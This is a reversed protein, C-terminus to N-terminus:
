SNEEGETEKEGRFFKPLDGELKVGIVFLFVAFGLVLIGTIVPVFLMMQALPNNPNFGAVVYGVVTTLIIVHKIGFQKKQVM